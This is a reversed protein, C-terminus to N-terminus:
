DVPQSLVICLLLGSQITVTAANGLLVNSIGRTAGFHLTEDKLPYELGKTTVGEVDGGIPILSVVDGAQGEIWVQYYVPYVRQKGALFSIKQQRLQDHATLLFNSLTMDLRGGLAGLVLTEKAGREAAYLLALELDTENKRKPHPIIEAGQTKFHELEEGTLSDFDGIVVAPEIGLALCHRGGGDAAIILDGAQLTSRALAHDKLEGNAFIVARM